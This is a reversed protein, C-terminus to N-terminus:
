NGKRDTQTKWGFEKAMMRIFSFLCIAPYDLYDV